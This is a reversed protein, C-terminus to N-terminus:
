DFTRPNIPAKLDRAVIIVAIFFFLISVAAASGGGISLWMVNDTSPREGAMLSSFRSFRTWSTLLAAIVFTLLQAWGLWNIVPKASVKQLILYVGAITLTSIMNLLPRPLAYLLSYDRGEPIANMDVFVGLSATLIAVLIWAKILM